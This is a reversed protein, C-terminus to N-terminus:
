ERSVIFKMPIMEPDVTKSVMVTYNIRFAIVPCLAISFILRNVTSYLQQHHGLRRRAIKSKPGCLELARNFEIKM